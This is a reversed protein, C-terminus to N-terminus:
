SQAMMGPSMDMEVRDGDLWGNKNNDEKNDKVGDDDKDEVVAVPDLKDPYQYAEPNDDVYPRDNFYNLLSKGFIRTPQGYYQSTGFYSEGLVPIDWTRVDIRRIHGSNKDGTSWGTMYNRVLLVDINKDEFNKNIDSGNSGLSTTEITFVDIGSNAFADPISFPIGGPLSSFDVGCVFLNKKSIDLRSIVEM